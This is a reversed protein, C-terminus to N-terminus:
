QSVRSTFLILGLLIWFILLVIEFFGPKKAVSAPHIPQPTNSLSSVTNQSNENESLAEGCNPCYKVTDTVDYDCHPCIM